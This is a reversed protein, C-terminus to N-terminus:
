ILQNTLKGCIILPHSLTYMLQVNEDLMFVPTHTHSPLSFYKNQSKELTLGAAETSVLVCLCLALLHLSAACKQHVKFACKILLEKQSGVCGESKLCAEQLNPACFSLLHCCLNRVKNVYSIM